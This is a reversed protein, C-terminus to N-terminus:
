LAGGEREADTPTTEADHRDLIAVMRAAIREVSRVQARTQSARDTKGARELQDAIRAAADCADITNHYLHALDALIARASGRPHNTPQTM